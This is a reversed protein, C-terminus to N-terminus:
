DVQIRSEGFTVQKTAASTSEASIGYFYEGVYAGSPLTTTITGKLVGNVYYAVSTATIFVFELIYWTSLTLTTSLNLNTRATGNGCYGFLDFTATNNVYFGIEKTVDTVAPPDNMQGVGVKIFGLTAWNVPTVKIKFRTATFSPTVLYGVISKAIISPYAGNAPTFTLTGDTNLTPPSISKYLGDTSKWLEREYLSINSYADAGTLQTDKGLIVDTGDFKLYKNLGDGVYLRPNGANYDLQIGDNGFTADNISLKKNSWDIVINTGNKLETSTITAGGITGGTANLATTTLTGSINADVATLLGTSGSLTTKAVSSSDYGILNSANLVIRAGSAATQITAGTVTGANITGLDANIASLNAVLINTAVVYGTIGVTGSTANYPGEKNAKSIFRIWYYYTTNTSGVSDIYLSFDATGIRVATGLNNTSNRWIETYSHNAYLTAPNTWTLGNIAVGAAVVFGTPAPPIDYNAPGDADAPIIDIPSSGHFNVYVGNDYIKVLGGEYLDRVTIFRDLESGAWGERVNMNSYIADLMQQVSTPQSVLARPLPKPIFKRAVM